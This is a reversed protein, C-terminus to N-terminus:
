LCFVILGVPVISFFFMVSTSLATARIVEGAGLYDDLIGLRLTELDKGATRLEM